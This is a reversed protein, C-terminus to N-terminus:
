IQLAWKGKGSQRKMLKSRLCIIQASENLTLIGAVYAAVEGMSHGVVADPVIGKSKWLDALAIEIAVLIPQIVDIEDFRSSGEGKNLEEIM